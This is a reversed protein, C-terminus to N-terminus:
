WWARARGGAMAALAATAEDPTSTISRSRPWPSTWARRGAAAAGHCRRVRPRDGSLARHPSAGAGADDRRSRARDGAGAPRGPTGLARHARGSRRPRRRRGPGGTSPRAPARQGRPPHSRADARLRRVLRQSSRSRRADRASGGTPLPGDLLERVGTERAMVMAAARGRRRLGPRTRDDRGVRRSRARDHRLVSSSCSCSPPPPCTATTACCAARPPWRARTSSSCRARAISCAAGPLTCCGTACTRASSGRARGAAHTAMEAMMAAGIRRVDKSLVVRPRGGPYEFGMADLHESRFLTRHAVIAPVAATAADARARRRRGRLHRPGGREGASRRPLLRGLLDRRRARARPPRPVRPHSELGAAARGGRRRLRHRRRPRAARRPPLRSSGGPPRRPEADDPGHVHHHRPLGRGRPAWGARDLAARLAAEGLELAGRRFRDNLEDVSEDPRFRERTSTSIGAASTAPRSSDAAASTGTAPWPWCSPRRSASPRRPPPSPRSGRCSWETVEQDDARVLHPCKSCVAPTLTMGSNLKSPFDGRTCGDANM